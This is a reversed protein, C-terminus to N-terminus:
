SQSTRTWSEDLGSTVEEIEDARDTHDAVQRYTSRHHVLPNRGSEVGMDRVAGIVLTHDGAEVVRDVDCDVWAVAGVLLPNGSPAPRWAVGAFKDTQTMAFRASLEAQDYGLVSVCFSGSSRIPPWSKSSATVFFGVLPPELSVPVFTGVSLGKPVSDIIGAVIAVSTPVHAMVQRFQDSTLGPM